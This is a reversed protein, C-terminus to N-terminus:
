RQLAERQFGQTREKLVRNEQAASGLTDSLLSMRTFSKLEEEPINAALKIQQVGCVGLHM